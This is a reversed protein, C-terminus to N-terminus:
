RSAVQDGLALGETVEVMVGNDLGTEIAVEQRSEAKVVTVFARGGYTKIASKPILLIDTKEQVVVEARGVLGPRVRPSPKDLAMVVTRNTRLDGAPAIETIRGLLPTPDGDMLYLKVPQGVQLQAATLPEAQARAVADGDGALIMLDQFPRVEGGEVTAMSLITGAFPAVVQTAALAEAAQALTLEAEQLDLRAIQLEEPTPVRDTRNELMTIALKRRQVLLEARAVDFTLSGAELEALLQGEAVREGVQAHLAKLRGGGRTYLSQQRQAGFTVHLDVQVALAGRSVTVIERQTTVPTTIALSPLEPETPLLSCGSVLVTLALGLAARRVIM